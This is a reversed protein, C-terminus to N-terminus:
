YEYLKRARARGKHVIGGREVAAIVHSYCRGPSQQLHVRECARTGYVRDIDDSVTKARRTAFRYRNSYKHMPQVRYYM